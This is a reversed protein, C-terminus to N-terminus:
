EANQQDLKQQEEETKKQLGLSERNNNTTNLGAAIRRMEDSEATEDVYPLMSPIFERMFESAAQVSLIQSDIATALGDALDKITLAVESDNKQSIAEWSIDPEYIELKSSNVMSWMTALMIGLEMFQEEFMGRKRRIKRAFPTMQESVSAKSSSVATGFCFEPTESVDVVCYFLFELLTTIGQLGSDATIFEADDEQEMLFIEKNSFNLKGGNIEAVPFNNTLFAQVDKLKFKAKPRSFMKSGQVAFLMTDHYSKMFPELAELESIGNTQYEEQENHFCVIPIFGWPNPRTGALEKVSAPANSDVITEIEKPRIIERINYNDQRGDKDVKIYPYTIIVELYGGNIPDAIPVVWEPPLLNLEFQEKGDPSFRNPSYMIRGYIDGDRLTNRTVRFLKGEWRNLIAEVDANLETQDGYTFSPVGMFGVTSNIVPKAFAAGLKYKDNINRYLERALTYDVRQSELRYSGLTGVTIPSTLAMSSIEGVISRWANKLRGGQGAIITKAEM